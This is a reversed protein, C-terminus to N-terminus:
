IPPLTDVAVGRESSIPLESYGIGLRAFIGQTCM